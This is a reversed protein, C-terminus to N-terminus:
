SGNTQNAVRRHSFRFGLTPFSVRGAIYFGQGLLGPRVGLEGGFSYHLEQNYVVDAGLRFGMNHLAIAQADYTQGGGSPKAIQLDSLHTYPAVLLDAYTTFIINNALNGFQDAKISVNRILQYSGGLAITTCQLTSYLTNRNKGSTANAGITQGDSTLITGDEGVLSLHQKQLAQNL